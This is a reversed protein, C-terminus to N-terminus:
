AIKSSIISVVCSHNANGCLIHYLIATHTEGSSIKGARPREAPIFRCRGPLSDASASPMAAVFSHAKFLPYISQCFINYLASFGQKTFNLDAASFVGGNGNDGGGQQHVAGAPDFVDGLDGIHRQAQLDQLLQASGDAGDVAVRHLDIAAVDTGGAGAIVQGALDAGGIIEDARQQAAEALSFHGHGAAAVEADAGDVLVDLAKGGQAGLHHHLAAKDVGGRLGAM